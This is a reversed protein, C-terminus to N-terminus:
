KQSGVFKIMSDKEPVFPSGDYLVVTAGISLGGSLNSEATQFCVISSQVNDVWDVILMFRSPQVSSYQFCIDTSRIDGHFTHEKKM